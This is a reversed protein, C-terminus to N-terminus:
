QSGEKLEFKRIKAGSTRALEDLFTLRKIREAVDGTSM